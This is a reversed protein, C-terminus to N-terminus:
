ANDQLKYNTKIKNYEIHFYKLWNKQFHKLRIYSLKHLICKQSVNLITGSKAAEIILNHVDFDNIQLVWAHLLVTNRLRAVGKRQRTVIQRCGQCCNLLLYVDLESIKPVRKWRKWSVWATRTVKTSFWQLLTHPSKRM